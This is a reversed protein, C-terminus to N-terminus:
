KGDLADATIFTMVGFGWIYAILAIWFAVSHAYFAADKLYSIILPGAAFLCVIQFANFFIM